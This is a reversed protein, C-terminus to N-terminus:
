SASKLVQYIYDPVTITSPKGCGDRSKRILQAEDLEKLLKEAKCHGCGLKESIESITFIVFVRGNKDTFRDANMRSAGMRDLIMSFLLKAEPPLCIFIPNQMLAKPLRIFSYGNYLDENLM